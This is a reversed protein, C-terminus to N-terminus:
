VGGTVAWKTKSSFASNKWLASLGLPFFLILSIVVIPKSDFWKHDSTLDPSM